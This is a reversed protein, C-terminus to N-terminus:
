MSGSQIGPPTSASWRPLFTGGSPNPFNERTFNGSGFPKTVQFGNFNTANGYGVVVNSGNIGLAQTFATNAPDIINTFSEAHASGAVASILAIYGLVTSSKGM